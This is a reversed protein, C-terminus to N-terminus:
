LIFSLTSKNTRAFTEKLSKPINCKGRWSHSVGQCRESIAHLVQKGPFYEWERDLTHPKMGTYIITSWNEEGCSPIYKCNIMWNRGAADQNIWIKVPLAMYKDHKLNRTDQAVTWAKTRMEKHKRTSHSSELAESTPQIQKNREWAWIDQFHPLFWDQHCLLSRASGQLRTALHRDVATRRALVVM